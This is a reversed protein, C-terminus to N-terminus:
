GYGAPDGGVLDGSSRAYWGGVSFNREGFLTSTQWLVDAGGLTNDAAGSPDGHTFITGLRLHESADYTVRGAALNTRPIGEAGSAAHVSDTVAHLPGIGWPGARRLLKVGGLLPGRRGEFLGVRRSFFPIFSEGLGTGFDFMNAGELFFARKEPYFLPFR